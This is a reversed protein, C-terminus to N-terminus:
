GLEAQAVCGGINRLQQLFNGAYSQYEEWIGFFGLCPISGVSMGVLTGRM